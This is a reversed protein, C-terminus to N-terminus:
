NRKSVHLGLPSNCPRSSTSLPWSSAGGLLPVCCHRAPLLQMFLALNYSGSECDQWAQRHHTHTHTVSSVSCISIQYTFIASPTQFINRSSYFVPPFINSAFCLLSGPSPLRWTPNSWNNLTSICTLYGHSITFYFDVLQAIVGPVINRFGM